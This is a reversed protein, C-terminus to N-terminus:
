KGSWYKCTRAYGCFKETCTWHDRNGQPMPVKGERVAEIIQIMNEFRFLFERTWADTPIGERIVLKPKKNKVLADHCFKDPLKGHIILHGLSYGQSQTTPLTNAPPSSAATKLDRLISIFQDDKGGNNPIAWKERLDLRGAFDYPWGNMIVVFKEEVAVPRLTPALEDYHLKSLAVSMDITEDRTKSADLAELSDLKVNGSDWEGSIDDRAIALSEDRPAYQGSNLFSKINHEASKHVASGILLAVGPRVIENKPGIGFLKGYRRQFQIPCRYFMSLHSQHIQIKVPEQSEEFAQREQEEEEARYQNEADAEHELADQFEADSEYDVREVPM